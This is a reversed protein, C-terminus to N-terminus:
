WSDELELATDELALALQCATMLHATRKIFERIKKCAKKAFKQLSKGSSPYKKGV